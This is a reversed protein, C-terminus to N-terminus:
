EICAESKPSVLTFNNRQWLYLCTKNKNAYGIYTLGKKKILFPRALYCYWNLCSAVAEKLKLSNKILTNVDIVKLKNKHIAFVAALNTYRGSGQLIRTLVYEQQGDNNIDAKYLNFYDIDYKGSLTLYHVRQNQFWKLEQYEKIKSAQMLQIFREAGAKGVTKISQSKGVLSPAASPTSVSLALFLFFLIRMNVYM